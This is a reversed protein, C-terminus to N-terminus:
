KKDLFTNSLDTNVETSFDVVAYPVSAYDDKVYM